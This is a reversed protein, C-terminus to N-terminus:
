GEILSLRKELGEIKAIAEQLAATLLPVAKAQDIGQMDPVSRTGMVQATTERWLQGDELDVQQGADSSHIIELVADFAEHVAAVAVVEAKIQVGDIDYYAPVAQIAPSVENFGAERGATYIDGTAPSVEYEEDMMADKTGTVSEPIVEQLEHAVFGNVRSGDAIWEFNCPKLQKFTAIANTMPKVDTKLRYDSSTNYSTSSSTIGITGVVTNNFRISQIVGTSTKRNLTLPVDGTSTFHSYNNNFLIGQSNIGTDTKGVLVNGSSDIRMREADSTKLIVESGNIALPAYLSNDTNVAGIFSTASQNTILLRAAGSIVDLKALPSSNGIGVNGSADIRMRETANNNRFVIPTTTDNATPGIALFISPAYSIDAQGNSGSAGVQLLLRAYGTANTNTLSSATYGGATSSQIDLLHAPSSTGIGVNGSADIRMAESASTLFKLENSGTTGISVENGNSELAISAQHGGTSSTDLLLKIHESGTGKFVAAADTNNTFGGDATVTGTVDVGADSVTVKTGAANDDIGTSEFGAIVGTMTGGAKPLLGLNADALTGITVWGNNAANRLKLLGSTTDSWWQFAYMTAPETAGSNNSVIASSLSNLDVLFSAGSQDAILYDNQSM